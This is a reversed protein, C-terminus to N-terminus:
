HKGSCHVTIQLFFVQTYSLYFHFNINLIKYYIIKYYSSYLPCVGSRPFGRVLFVVHVSCGLHLYCPSLALMYERVHHSATVAHYHLHTLRHLTTIEELQYNGSSSRMLGFCTAVYSMKHIKFTIILSM